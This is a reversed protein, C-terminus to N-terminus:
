AEELKVVMNQRAPLTVTNYGVYSIRIKAGEKVKLKFNGDIDTVAGNTTGEELVSAGIVTEGQDDKVTGSVEMTTQATAYLGFSMLVFFLVIRKVSSLMLKINKM